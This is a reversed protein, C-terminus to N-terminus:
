QTAPSTATSTATPKKASSTCSTIAPPEVVPPEVPPPEVPPPPPPTVPPTVVPPPPPDYLTVTTTAVLSGSSGDSLAFDYATSYLAVGAYLTVSTYSFPSSVTLSGATILNIEAATSLSSFGIVGGDKMINITSGTIDADGTVNLLTNTGAINSPLYFNLTGGSANLNGTITNDKGHVSLSSPKFTAGTATLTSGNALSWPQNFTGGSLLAISGGDLGFASNSTLTLNEVTGSNVNFTFDVSHSAFDSYLYGNAEESFIHLIYNGTALSGGGPTAANFNGTASTQTSVYKAYYDDSGDNMFGSIYQNASGTPAGSFDFHLADSKLTLTPTKIGDQNDIAHYADLFTFKRAATPQAASQYGSTTTAASKGSSSTSADSTFLVSTLDLNFAPRVVYASSDVLYLSAFYGGGSWGALAYNGYDDPSRLWWSSPFSRVATGDSDGIGYAIARWEPYSLAWYLGTADAGNIGDANNLEPYNDSDWSPVINGISELDRENIM